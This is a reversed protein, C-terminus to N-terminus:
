LWWRWCTVDCNWQSCTGMFIHQAQHKANASAQWYCIQCHCAHVNRWVGSWTNPRMTVHCCCLFETFPQLMHLGENMFKNKCATLQLERLSSLGSVLISVIAASLWEACCLRLGQLPCHGGDWPPVHRPHGAQQGQRDKGQLQGWWSSCQQGGDAQHRDGMWRWGTVPFSIRTM